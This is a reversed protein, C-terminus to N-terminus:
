DANPLMAKLQAYGLTGADKNKAEINSLFQTFLPIRAQGLQETEQCLQTAVDPVNWSGYCDINGSWTDLAAGLTELTLWRAHDLLLHGAQDGQWFKWADRLLQLVADIFYPDRHRGVISLRQPM